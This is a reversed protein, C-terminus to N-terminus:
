KKLYENLVRIFMEEQRKQCFRCNGKHTLKDTNNDHVGGIYECSDIVYLEIVSGNIKYETSRIEVNKSDCSLFITSFALLIFIKKM